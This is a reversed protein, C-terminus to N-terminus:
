DSSVDDCATLRYLAAEGDHAVLDLLRPVDVARDIGAFQAAEVPAGWLLGPDEYVYRVGLRDAAACVAPDDLATDLSSAILLADPSWEGALHPFLARRGGIAWTLASGNWPDGAVVADPEVYRDLERLLSDEDADVFQPDDAQRFVAATEDRVAAISPSLWAAAVIALGIGAAVAGASRGRWRAATNRLSVVALAVLPIGVIALVAFLRYKDKYWLGTALKALDSNSGAALVYLAAVLLWAVVLWRTERRRAALVLGVLVLVSVIIAPGTTAGSPLVPAQVLAQLLSAGLGQTATAPGGNLHDSIPRNALDFTRAVYLWGAIGALVVLGVAAGIGGIARRRFRADDWRARVARWAAWVLAPVGILAISLLSRPHSLSGAAVWLAAAVGCAIQAARTAPAGPLRLLSVGLAVGSPLQSYALGTPYLTGWALLLLPHAPFAAAALAGVAPALARSAPVIASALLAAGPVWVITSTAIWAANTSAPISAGSVAVVLAVLDHWAAPYFEVGGDDLHTMGYLDFSSGDGTDLIYAAANLHFVGDYSQSFWEADPVAASFSAGIAVVAVLMAAGAFLLSRHWSGLVPRALARLSHHTVLQVLVVVLVIAVTAVAVVPVGFPVRIWAAVVASAAIIAISFPGVLALWWLGATRLASAVLGGPLLLLVAAAALAMLQM